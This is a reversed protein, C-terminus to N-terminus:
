GSVHHCLGVVINEPHDEAPDFGDFEYVSMSAKVIGLDLRLPDCGVATQPVHDISHWPLTVGPEGGKRMSRTDEPVQCSMTPVCREAVSSHEPIITWARVFIGDGIFEPNGSRNGHVFVKGAVVKSRWPKAISRKRIVVRRVKLGGHLSVLPEGVDVHGVGTTKKDISIM